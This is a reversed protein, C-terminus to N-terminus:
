IELFTGEVHNTVLVIYMSHVGGETTLLGFKIQNQVLQKFHVNKNPQICRYTVTKCNYM